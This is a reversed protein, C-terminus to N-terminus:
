VKDGTMEAFYHHSGKPRTVQESQTLTAIDTPSTCTVM